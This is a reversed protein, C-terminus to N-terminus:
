EVYLFSNGAFLMQCFDTLVLHNTESSSSYFDGQRKLFEEAAAREAATPGRSLALEFALDIRQTPDEKVENLLREAFAKSRARAFESNLLALSQLPVTSATRQVCNPNMKAGDFLDLFTVPNTRRQQLYIARRKSGPDNESIVYQGEDTKAKPVYPGGAKRDLEGSISLMADRIAEGDLRQLPFRWLLRNDPDVQWAKAMEASSSAQRYTASMVMLRHLAKVSWGSTMFETTLWDLLEPHSPQAGTLGFNEPTAVIGVAFHHQWLRNVMLRATTPHEASTLWKAFATRRGSRGAPPTSIQFANKASCLVAPVGPEVERGTKTYNGRVLVHHAPPQNTQETLAAIQPLPVPRDAERKKIAESLSKYGSAIDPFRNILDEDKIRVLAEHTKLLEKMRASREKEKTDLAKQLEQREQEPLKTLNEDLVLKRWPKMLGELSETLAKREIEFKEIEHKNKEREKKTGIALARDNPKLWRDPDYAPRLIAQLQYYEEQTVPEFKHDHCRACQVTLGLLASGIIQVNGELVSFRDVRQEQANGDSEGTGDPGNRLLHTAVLLEVIEPTVDGGAQYGALEDGAIQERLFRDLPKDDNFSRIVYDRYKYALPRDSDADFYGNSDSYGAADLWHRGWREGYHPSSLLREVLSAYAGPSKDAVFEAVEQPSPPLGTLDFSLRRILTRRDAEPSPSLGERELRSLIFHDVTNQPWSKNETKPVPPRVPSKFAWHDQAKLKPNRTESEASSVLLLLVILVGAMM